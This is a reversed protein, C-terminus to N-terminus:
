LQGAPILYRAEFQEAPMPKAYYYGQIIDCGVLCLFEVQERTEICEAVVQMHLDKAMAITNRIVTLGRQTEESIRFLEGDLKVIDLPLDKLSNLSSYGAGFDDMSVVFGYNKLRVVTKILTHKSQLFASETLELEILEHPVGYEDVIDRIEEALAPNAFHIRSINVSIPMPSYDRDLWDKLKECVKRLMYIDLEIIFGNKEFVPIFYGPTVLAGQNNRWRVLAEAGSVTENKAMYKPQLYMIFEDNKLADYMNKEIEEEELLRGRAEDDFFTIMGENHEKSRSKAIGAFEGMRDISDTRETIFYVGFYIKVVKTYRLRRLRENLDKLRDTVENEKQFSMLIYFQDAAYRTYPEGNGAWHKVVQYIDKLVEDGKQYGYADNIVKFRNIDFNILAYKKKSFQRSNLLKNVDRRFRYWNGGGTVPDLYLTQIVKRNSARQIIILLMFLLFIGAMIVVLMTTSIKFIERAMPNMIDYKGVLLTWQNIGLPSQYLILENNKQYFKSFYDIFNMDAMRAEYKEYLYGRSLANDYNFGSIDTGQFYATLAKEGNVVYFSIGKQGSDELFDAPDLCATVTASLVGRCNSNIMIPAAYTIVPEGSKTYSIRDSVGAQGMMANIFYDEGSADIEEGTRDYGKGDTGIVAMDLYANNDWFPSLISKAQEKGIIASNNKIEELYHQGASDALIQLAQCNNEIDQKMMAATADTLRDCEELSTKYSYQAMRGMYYLGLSLSLATGIIALLILPIIRSKPLTFKM